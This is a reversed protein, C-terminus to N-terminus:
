GVGGKKTGGGGGGVWKRTYDLGIYEAAYMIVRKESTKREERERAM